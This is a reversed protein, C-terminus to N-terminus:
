IYFVHLVCSIRGDEGGGLQHRGVPLMAHHIDVALHGRDVQAVAQPREARDRRAQFEDEGIEALVACSRMSAAPWALQAHHGISSFSLWRTAASSRSPYLGLWIARSSLIEFLLAYRNRSYDAPRMHWARKRAVACGSASPRHSIEFDQELIVRWLFRGHNRDVFQDDTPIVGGGPWMHSLASAADRKRTM